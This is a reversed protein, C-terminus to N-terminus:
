YVFSPQRVIPYGRSCASVVSSLTSKRCNQPDPIVTPPARVRRTYAAPRWEKRPLRRTFLLKEFSM